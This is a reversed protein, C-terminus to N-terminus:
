KRKEGVVQFEIVVKESCNVENPHFRSSVFKNPRKNLKKRKKTTKTTRRTM